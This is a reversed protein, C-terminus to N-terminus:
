QLYSFIPHSKLKQELVGRKIPDLIAEDIIKLVDRKRSNRDNGLLSKDTLIIIFCLICQRSYKLIIPIDEPGIESNESLDLTSSGHLIQSRTDYYKKTKEFVSLNNGGLLGLLLALRISIKYRLETQDGLLAELSIMAHVFQITEPKGTRFEIEKALMWYYLAIELPGFNTIANNIQDFVSKVEDVLDYTFHPLTQIMQSTIVHLIKGSQEKSELKSAGSYKITCGHDCLLSYAKIFNLDNKSIHKLNKEYEEDKTLILCSLEKENRQFLASENIWKQSKDEINGIRFGEILYRIQFLNM